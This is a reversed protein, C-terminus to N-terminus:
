KWLNKIEDLIDNVLLKVKFPFYPKLQGNIYYMRKPILGAFSYDEIYAPGTLRHFGIDEYLYAKQITTKTGISYLTHTPKDNVSINKNTDKNKYTIEIRPGFDPRSFKTFGGHFYSVRKLIDIDNYKFTKKFNTVLM